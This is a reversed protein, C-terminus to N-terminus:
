PAAVAVGSVKVDQTESLKLFLFEPRAIQYDSLTVPFSTRFEIRNEAPRYTAEVRVHLPRSVGHLTFTGDAELVSTEGPKLAADAPGTLTAGDFVALPYKGTELHNERMHRNRMAIGTDLTTLDVELHVGIKTGLASPEVEIRGLLRDTEGQFREMTAKSVFVVKNKGGPQVIFQAAPVLAPTALLIALVILSRRM